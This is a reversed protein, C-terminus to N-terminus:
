ELRWFIIGTKKWGNETKTFKINGAIGKIEDKVVKYKSYYNKNKSFYLQKVGYGYDMQVFGEKLYKLKGKFEVNYREVGNTSSKLADIKEFNTFEVNEKSLKKVESIITKEIKSENPRNECSTFTSIIIFLLFIKKM